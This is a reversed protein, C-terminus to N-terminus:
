LKSYIIRLRMRKGAIAYSGGGLVVRGKAAENSIFMQSSIGLRNSYVFARVPAFLRLTQNPKKLTIIDQVYKSINFRYTSDSLKLGGGFKGFDYTFSGGAVFQVNMDTDFTFATDGTTNIRDLFLNVPQLFIGNQQSSLSNVVLEARHIVANKFTDLAPIKISAYSGPISQLYVKDDGGPGNTLYTLWGNLQQRQICNAQGLTQHYFETFTTDRIGNKTVRFYVILKTKNIDSPTIYTL